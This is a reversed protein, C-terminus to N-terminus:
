APVENRGVWFLWTLGIIAAILSALLIGLKAEEQLNRDTFALQSIFLSMTFGVGGLWAAGLLHRWQVGHPLRAINLRVAIWSSLSIGIFKGLVLGLCTGLTVTSLLMGTSVQTFNIGANALAFIPIVGFTVWPQVTHELRQQPALAAASSHQLSQIISALQDNVLPDLRRSHIIIDRLNQGRASLTDALEDPRIRGRAPITFALLIGAVTAHVGSLMVFYWFPLGVLLYPLPQRKYV